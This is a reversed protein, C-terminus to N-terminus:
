DAVLFVVFGDFALKDVVPLGVEAVNLILIQGFHVELGTLELLHAGFIFCGPSDLIEVVLLQLTM